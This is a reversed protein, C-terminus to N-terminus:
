HRQVSSAYRGPSVGFTRVFHRTLHSQDFLGLLRAVDAPRVSRKLMERPRALRVQLQDMLDPAIFL